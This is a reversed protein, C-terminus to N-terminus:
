KPGGTAVRRRPTVPPPAGRKVQGSERNLADLEAGPLSGFEGRSFGRPAPASRGAGSDGGCADALSREPAAGANFSHWEPGSRACSDEASHAHGAAQRPPPITPPITQQEHPLNVAYIEAQHHYFWRPGFLASVEELSFCGARAAWIALKRRFPRGREVFSFNGKYLRQFGRSYSVMRAGKHEPQREGVAKALYGGVYHGVAEAGSKIPILEMRGLGYKPGTERLTRWLSRLLANGGYNGKPKSGRERRFAKSWHAVETAHEFNFGDRIAGSCSVVLHFHPRGSRTFELVKIRDGFLVSLVRRNFNNFRREAEEWTLDEAFTITLFGVKEIGVTSCFAIVNMTLAHATKKQAPTLGVARQYSRPTATERATKDSNNSSLCPLPIRRKAACGGERAWRPQMGLCFRQQESLM